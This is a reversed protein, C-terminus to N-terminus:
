TLYFNSKGFFNGSYKTNLSLFYVFISFVFCVKFFLLIERLILNKPNSHTCLELMTGMWLYFLRVWRTKLFVFTLINRNFGSIGLNSILKVQHYLNGSYKTNLSLFYVFISFVFCVKFINLKKSKFTHVTGINNGNM